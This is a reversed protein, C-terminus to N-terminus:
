NLLTFKWFRRSEGKVCVIRFYEHGLVGEKRPTLTKLIIHLDTGCIGSYVVKVIVNEKGVHQPVDIEILQLVGKTSSWKLAKM